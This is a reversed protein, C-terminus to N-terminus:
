QDGPASPGLRVRLRALIRGELQIQLRRGKLTYNVANSSFETRGNWLQVLEELHSMLMDDRFVRDLNAALEVFNEADFLSLTKANVKIVRILGACTKVRALDELLYERLSAVGERRWVDFQIKVGSYDELWLSMPTLDFTDVADPLSAQPPTAFKPLARM